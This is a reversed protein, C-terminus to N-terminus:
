GLWVAKEMCGQGQWSLSVSVRSRADCNDRKYVTAVIKLLSLLYKVQSQSPKWQFSIFDCGLTSGPRPCRIRVKRIRERVLQKGSCWWM